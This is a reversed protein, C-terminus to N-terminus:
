SALGHRVSCPVKSHTINNCCMNLIDQFNTKVPIHFYTSLGKDKKLKLFQIEKRFRKNMQKMANPIGDEEM